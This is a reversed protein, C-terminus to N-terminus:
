LGGQQVRDWHRGVRIVSLCPLEWGEPRGGRAAGLEDPQECVKSINTFFVAEELVSKWVIELPPSPPLMTKLDPQFAGSTKQFQTAWENLYPLLAAGASNAEPTLNAGGFDIVDEQFEIVDGLILWM